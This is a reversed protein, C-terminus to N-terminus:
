ARMATLSLLPADAFFERVEQYIPFVRRPCNVWTRVQHAALLAQAEPYDALDQFLVKELLLCRVKSHALLSEMVALRIDATTAIIVLDLDLPLDGIETQYRVGRMAPNVPMEDFRQRAVALSASMPDIVTIECELQLKALGQLHRSGLQGAGIIAIQKTM